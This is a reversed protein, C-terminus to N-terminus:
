QTVMNEKEDSLSAAHLAANIFMSERKSLHVPAATASTFIWSNSDGDRQLTRSGFLSITDIRNKV